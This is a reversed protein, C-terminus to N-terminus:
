VKLYPVFDFPYKSKYVGHIDAIYVLSPCSTPLNPTGALYYMVACLKPLFKVQLLLAVHYGNRGVKKPLFKWWFRTSYPVIKCSSLTKWCTAM